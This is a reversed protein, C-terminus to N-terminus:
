WPDAAPQPTGTYSKPSGVAARFASGAPSGRDTVSGRKEFGLSNPYMEKPYEAPYGQGAPGWPQSLPNFQTPHSANGYSSLSSAGNSSGNPGDGLTLATFKGQIDEHDLSQGVGHHYARSGQSFSMSPRHSHVSNPTHGGFTLDGFPNAQTHLDTESHSSTPMGPDRSAGGVMSQYTVDQSPRKPAAFGNLGSPEAGYKPPGFGETDEKDMFGSFAPLAFASTAADSATGTKPRVLGRQGIAPQIQSQSTSYYASGGNTDHIPADVRSRNPSTNGSVNRTQTTETTNWPGPRTGWPEAESTAALAGSGSPANPFADSSEAPGTLKTGVWSWRGRIQTGKSAAADRTKGFTGIPGNGWIGSPNWSTTSPFTAGLTQSPKENGNGM